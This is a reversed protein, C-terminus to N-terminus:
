GDKDPGGLGSLVWPSQAGTGAGLPTSVLGPFQLPRTLGRETGKRPQLLARARRQEAQLGTRMRTRIGLRRPDARVDSPRPM